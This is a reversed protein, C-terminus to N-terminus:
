KLEKLTKVILAPTAGNAELVSILTTLDTGKSQVKTARKQGKDKRTKRKKKRPKNVKLEPYAELVRTNLAARHIVRNGLTSYQKHITPWPLGQRRLEAAENVIQVPIDKQSVYKTKSDKNKEVFTQVTEPKQMKTEKNTELKYNLLYYGDMPILRKITEKNVHISKIFKGNSHYIDYGRIEGLLILDAEDYSISINGSYDNEMLMTKDKYM